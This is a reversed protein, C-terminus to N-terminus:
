YKVPIPIREQLWEAYRALEGRVLSSDRDYPMAAGLRGAKSLGLPHYPLLDVQCVHPMREALAAIAAFHADTFNVDPIIPCRLVVNAGLESLRELNELIPRNSVGTYRIHQAEDAIKFDFLFLDTCAAVAELAEQSGYGSTEVCVHIGQARAARALAATFRHQALPEGGSITMGGGSNQYFERDEMVAGLVEEVTVTRGCLELADAYCVAACAGCGVCGERRFVHGRPTIGHLGHPCGSVCAGCGICKDPSFLLQPVAANSEPNHCWACRLPCGKLFVTTRIGPGDDVCFRQLNFVVGEVSM